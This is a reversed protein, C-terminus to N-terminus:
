REKPRLDPGARARRITKKRIRSRRRPERLPRPKLARVRPPAAPSSATSGVPAHGVKTSNQVTTVVQKQNDLVFSLKPASHVSNKIGLDKGAISARHVVNTCQPPPHPHHEEAWDSGERLGPSKCDLVGRVKGGVQLLPTLGAEPQATSWRHSRVTWWPAAGANLMQGRTTLADDYHSTM